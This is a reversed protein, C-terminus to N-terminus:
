FNDLRVEHTASDDSRTFALVIALALVLGVGAMLSFLVKIM